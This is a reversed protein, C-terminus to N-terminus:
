ASVEEAELLEDVDPLADGYDVGAREAANTNVSLWERAEAHAARVEEEDHIDLWAADAETAVEECLEAVRERARKEIAWILKGVSTEMATSVPDSEDLSEERIELAEEADACAAALANLQEDEAFHDHVVDGLLSDFGSVYPSQHKSLEKRATRSLRSM